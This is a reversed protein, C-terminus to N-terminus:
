KFFLKTTYTAAMEIIMCLYYIVHNDLVAPLLPIKSMTVTQRFSQFDQSWTLYGAGSCLIKQVM